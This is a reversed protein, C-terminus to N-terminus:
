AWPTSHWAGGDTRAFLAACRLRNDAEWAASFAQLLEDAAGQADTQEDLGLLVWPM